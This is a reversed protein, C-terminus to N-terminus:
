PKPAHQQLDTQLRDFNEENANLIFDRLKAGEPESDFVMRWTLRTQGNEPTYTITMQFGHTPSVHRFAVRENPVVELFEKENPFDKGDPGHMTFLWKGGPRLDFERFTNRFGKPGWWLALRQPDRFAAYLAERSADFVRTSIIERM